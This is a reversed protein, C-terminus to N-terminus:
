LSCEKYVITRSSLSAVYTQLQSHEFQRRLVYLRRDFDIGQAVDAPRAIFCQMIVPMCDKARQGLVNENVPVDRWGLFQLGEKKTLFEIMKKAQARLYQDQPFFFMGVGYDREGGIEFGLEKAVHSFFNHSIQLLIGVGDGTEGTADKGARHELKEVISLANDVIKREAKGDINVVLGIGCNDHEFQPEYLTKKM